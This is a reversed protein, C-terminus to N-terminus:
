TWIMSIVIDMDFSSIAIDMDFSSIAIDMDTTIHVINMDTTIHCHEYWNHSSCTTYVQFYVLDENVQNFKLHFSKIATSDDCWTDYSIHVYHIHVYDYWLQYPCLWIMTQYSSAQFFLHVNTLISLSIPRCTFNSHVVTHITTSTTYIYKHTPLTTTHTKPTTHQNTPIKHHQTPKNTHKLLNKYILYIQHLSTQLHTSTTHHYHQRSHPQQQM